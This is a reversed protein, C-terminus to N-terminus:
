KKANKAAAANREKLALGLLCGNGADMVRVRGTDPIVSMRDLCKKIYEPNKAFYTLVFKQKANEPLRKWQNLTQDAPDGCGHLFVLCSVLSVFCSFLPLFKRM